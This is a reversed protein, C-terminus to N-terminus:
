GSGTGIVPWRSTGYRYRFADVDKVIMAYGGAPIEAFPDFVFEIGERSGDVLASIFQAGALSLPQDSVNQLEIFEFMDADDFGAAFEDLTPSAPHYHIESIRLADLTALASTQYTADAVPSWIGDVVVRARVTASRDMIVSAEAIGAVLTTNNLLDADDATLNLAHISLVNDGTRLLSLHESLDISEANLVDM